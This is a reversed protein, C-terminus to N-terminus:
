WARSVFFSPPVCRKGVGPIEVKAWEETVPQGNHFVTKLKFGKVTAVYTRSDVHSSLRIVCQANLRPDSAPVIQIQPYVKQQRIAALVM